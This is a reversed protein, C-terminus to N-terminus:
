LLPAYVIPYWWITPIGALPMSLSIIRVLPVLVLSLFLQRYLRENTLASRTILTALLLIHIVIGMVPLYFVTVVEAITVVLLYSITEIM